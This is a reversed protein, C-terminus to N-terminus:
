AVTNRIYNRSRSALIYADFHAEASSDLANKSDDYGDKAPPGSRMMKMASSSSSVVNNGNSSNLMEARMKDVFEDRTMDEKRAMSDLFDDLKKKM